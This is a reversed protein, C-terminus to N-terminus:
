AGGDLWGSVDRKRYWAAPDVLFEETEKLSQLHDNEIRSLLDFFDKEKKDESLDRLAAYFDRGKAEFDLATRVAKIDDNTGAPIEAAQRKIEKILARVETGQVTLPLTAPWKAAAKWQEHLKGISEMHGAEERAIREFLRKGFLNRTMEAQKIYFDREAKENKLATELANIREKM